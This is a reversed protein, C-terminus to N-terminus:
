VIASFYDIESIFVVYYQPAQCRSLCKELLFIHQIFVVPYYIRISKKKVQNVPLNDKLVFPINVSVM